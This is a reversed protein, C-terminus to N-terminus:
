DLPHMDYYKRPVNWPMHPKHLGVALFFPKDHKKQLQEIGYDFSKGIACIKTRAISRRSSSAASALTARRSRDTGERPSIITGNARAITLSRSLDKGAGCVYYGAKRFTTTLPLDEPIVRRWDNDNEYVGTTFPAPGVDARRAVSQLGARRLLQAHVM